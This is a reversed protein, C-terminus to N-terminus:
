AACSAALILLLGLALKRALDLALAAIGVLIAASILADVLPPWGGGDRM